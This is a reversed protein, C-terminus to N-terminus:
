SVVATVQDGFYITSLFHTIGSKYNPISLDPKGSAEVHLTKEPAFNCTM